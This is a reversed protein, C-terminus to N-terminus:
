NTEEAIIKNNNTINNYIVTTNDKPKKNKNKLFVEYSNTNNLLDKNNYLNFSINTILILIIILIIYKIYEEM